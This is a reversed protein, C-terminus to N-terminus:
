ETSWPQRLFWTCAEGVISIQTYSLARSPHNHPKILMTVFHSNPFRFVVPNYPLSVPCQPFPVRCQDIKPEVTNWVRKPLTCVIRPQMKQLLPWIYNEFGAALAQQPIARESSSNRWDLNLVATMSTVYQEGGLMAACLRYWRRKRHGLGEFDVVAQGIQMPWGRPRNDGGLEGPKGRDAAGMSPGLLILFANAAGWCALPWSTPLTTTHESISARYRQELDPAYRGLPIQSM